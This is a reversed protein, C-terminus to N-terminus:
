RPNESILDPLVTWPDDFLDEAYLLRHHTGCSFRFAATPRDLDVRGIVTYIGTGKMESQNDTPSFFAEMTNHSHIECFTTLYDTEPVADYTISTATATQDPWVLHHKGDRHNYIISLMVETHPRLKFIRIANELLSVPAKPVKLYVGEKLGLDLKSPIRAIFSGLNTNRIEYVGDRDLVRRVPPIPGELIETEVQITGHGTNKANKRPEESDRSFGRVMGAKIGASTSNISGKKLAKRNPIIRNRAEDHTFETNEKTLEPFDDELFDIIQDGTMDEELEIKHGAYVITSGSPYLKPEPKKVAQQTSGPKTPEPKKKKFDRGADGMLDFLDDPAEAEAPKDEAGSKNQDVQDVQNASDPAEQDQSGQENTQENTQEQSQEEQHDGQQHDQQHDQQSKSEEENV